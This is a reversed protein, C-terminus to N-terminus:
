DTKNFQWMDFCGQLWSKLIRSIDETQKPILNTDKNELDKIEFNNWTAATNV